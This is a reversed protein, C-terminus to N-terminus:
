EQALGRESDEKLKMVKGIFTEVARWQTRSRLMIDVANEANVQEGTELELTTREAEWRPCTVLTHEPDDPTGGCHDCADTERKKIRKLFTGFSGHGTLFQTLRYSPQGWGRFHWATLDKILRRTWVATETGSQWEEQWKEVTKVREARREEETGDRARTMMGRREEILLHIPITDSVVLAADTSVTNYACCIRLAMARQVSSVARRCAKIRLAEGWVTGGYLLVSQVAHSLARRKTPSPGGINPLIGYLAKVTRKAREAVERAHASFVLRYDMTIGLYRVTKRMEVKHGRLNFSPLIRRYTLSMSTTKQPAMRLHNKGMWESIRELAENGRREVEAVSDGIVVAALDDAYCVLTVDEHVEVEMVDDYLINWLTPGLVSGQPVGGGVRKTIEKSLIVKRNTLYDRIVDSLYRPTKRRILKEMILRWSATNFANEVDVFIAAAHNSRGKKRASEIVREIAQTTSRGKRFGYQNEHLGGQEEVYASIRGNVIREFLKGLVNLLCIPRFKREDAAAKRPKELLVLKSTKWEEPFDGRRLLGDFVERFKESSSKVLEKVAEPPVGDPGPAKGPKMRKLAEELEDATVPPVNEELGERRARPLEEEKDEIFLQQFIETKKEETLTLAPNNVKLTNRVINYADGFVDRELDDVLEKWKKKKEKKIEDRLKKRADKHEEWLRQRTEEDTGQHRRSRLFIRRAKKATAMLTHIEEKWWYPMKDGITYIKPTTKRYAERMKVSIDTPSWGTDTMNKQFTTRLKEANIPGFIWKRTTKGREATETLVYRHDSATDEQLVRWTPPPSGAGDTVMTLDIYSVGNRRVLTPEGGENLIKLGTAAAWEWLYTGRPCTKRDGWYTNRANFDGAVFKRRTRDATISVQLQTMQERFVEFRMSPSLYVSYFDTKETRVSVYCDGCETDILDITSARTRVISACKTTNTYMYRKNSTIKKNPESILIIDCELQSATANALDHAERSRNTNIQLVKM